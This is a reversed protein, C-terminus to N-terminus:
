PYNSGMEIYIDVKGQLASVKINISDTDKTLRLARNYHEFALYHRKYKAHCSGIFTSLLALLSNNGVKKFYKEAEKYADLANLYYEKQTNEDCAMYNNGKLQYEMGLLEYTEEQMQPNESMFKKLHRIQRDSREILRSCDPKKLSDMTVTFPPIDTNVGIRAEDLLLLAKYHMERGKLLYGNVSFFQGIRLYVRGQGGVDKIKEFISLARHYMKLAKLNDRTNLYVDALSMVVRGQGAPHKAKEYLDLSKSYADYARNHKGNALYGDGDKELARATTIYSSLPQEAKPPMIEDSNDIKLPIGPKTKINAIERSIRNQGPLDNLKEYLDWLKEYRELAMTHEKMKLYIQAQHELVLTQSKSSQPSKVKKYYRMANDFMELALKDDNKASSISGKELYVKGQGMYDDIELYIQYAKELYVAAEDSQSILRYYEGTKLYVDALTKPDKKEEAAISAAKLHTQEKKKVGDEALQTISTKDINLVERKVFRRLSEEGKSKYVDLIQDKLHSQDEPRNGLGCGTVFLFLFLLLFSINLKMSRLYFKPIKDIKIYREM